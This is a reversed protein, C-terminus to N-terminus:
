LSTFEYQSVGIRRKRWECTMWINLCQSMVSGTLNSEICHVNFVFMFSVLLKPPAIHAGFSAYLQWRFDQSTFTKKEPNLGRFPEKITLLSQSVTHKHTPITYGSGSSMCENQATHFASSLVGFLCGLSMEFGFIMM